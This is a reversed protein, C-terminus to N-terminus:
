EGVVPFARTSRYELIRSSIIQPKNRSVMAFLSLFVYLNVTSGPTQLHFDPCVRSQLAPSPPFRCNGSRARAAHSRPGQRRPAPHFGGAGFGPSPHEKRPGALAGGSGRWLGALAGCLGALARGARCQGAPAAADEGRCQGWPVSPGVSVPFQPLKISSWPGQVSVTCPM